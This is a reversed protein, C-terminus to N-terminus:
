TSFKTDNQYFQNRIKFTLANILDLNPQEPLDSNEFAIEMENQLANAMELLDDYEHKGRKIELLFDRNPRKVNIAKEKGIEIAMELLRFTHMMNKADYNKGHSQTNEYRVENRNEVWNWYEKYEKCYRSYGDKNFYLIAKQTAGKPISTLCIDNSIDNKIIGSYNGIEDHFLGYVDKMHPIKVLGCHKQQWNNLELFRNLPLSGQEYNVYCFSLITKREKAIPNVIKKKLGKAKKIQSLAFKGFSNKCLKSLILKSDIEDLFPHKYLVASAPTNLLELINPNNLSLLEMYRGLEYYVIDNTENSVQPTYELGYFDKKPLLFVGKIDTDSSPTDLGYAKSGSICEFIILGNKKLDEITM